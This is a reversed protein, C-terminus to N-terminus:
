KKAWSIIGLLGCLAILLLALFNILTGCARQMRGERSLRTTDSLAELDIRQLGDSFPGYFLQLLVVLSQYGDLAMIPLTNVLYLSLNAIKMYEFFASAFKPLKASVLSFRSRLNSVQVQEWIEEKPGKWVVIDEISTGVHNMLVSIRVLQQDDRPVVCSSLPLCETSSNCRALNDTFIQVPDLGYQITEDVKSVFCSYSGTSTCASAKTSFLCSVWGVVHKAWESSVKDLLTNNTCWGQVSDSPPSLLYHDWPDEFSVSAMPSDDIKTILTGVPLHKALPSDYDVSIVFRGLASIDQFFIWTPLFGAGLWAASFLLCFLVFNHFCGGSVIQLRDRPSLKELRAAPLTVFASPLLFTVSVGCSLM